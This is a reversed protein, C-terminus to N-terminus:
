YGNYTCTTGYEKRKEDALKTMMEHYSRDKGLTKDWAKLEAAYRKRYEDGCCERSHITTERMDRYKGQIWAPASM